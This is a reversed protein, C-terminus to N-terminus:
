RPAMRLGGDLRVTEGNVYDNEVIALVLQAFEAPRALRPPFPVSAELGRRFNEDVGALMATDVVGPAIANVRIGHAALDRAAPLTLGVVGGKSSAYAAQGIQGEFAAVSATNVVVGRQGDADVPDQQAMVEAALALVQFTGVLNVQVTRAYVALDHPGRRGLVRASPCIGACNVVVRLPGTDASAVVEVSRRVSEPDTVDTALYTMGTAAPAGEVASALDFGYVHAGADALRRATEHGLGSAAGTVVTSTGAVQM